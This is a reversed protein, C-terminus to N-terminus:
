FYFFLVNLGGARQGCLKNEETIAENVERNEKIKREKNERYM